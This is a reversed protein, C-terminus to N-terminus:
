IISIKNLTLSVIRNQELKNKKQCHSTERMRAHSEHQNVNNMCAKVKQQVPQDTTNVTSYVLLIQVRTQALLLQLLLIRDTLQDTGTLFPICNSESM